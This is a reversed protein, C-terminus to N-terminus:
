QVYLNKAISDYKSSYSSDVLSCSFSTSEDHHLGPIHVTSSGHVLPVVIDTPICSDGVSECASSDVSIVGEACEITFDEASRLYAVTFAM